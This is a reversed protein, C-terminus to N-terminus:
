LWWATAGRPSRKLASIFIQPTWLLLLLLCNNAWRKRWVKCIRIIIVLRLCRHWPTTGISVLVGIVMVLTRRVSVMVIVLLVRATTATGWAGRNAITAVRVIISWRKCVPSIATSIWYGVWVSTVRSSIIITSSCLMRHSLWLFAITATYSTKPPISRSCLLNYHAVSSSTM